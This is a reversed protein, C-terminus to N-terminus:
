MDIGTLAAYQNLIKNKKEDSMKEFVSTTMFNRIEAAKLFNAKTQVFESQIQLLKVSTDATSSASSSSGSFYIFILSSLFNHTYLLLFQHLMSLPFVVFLIAFFYTM